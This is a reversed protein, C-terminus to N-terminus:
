QWAELHNDLEQAIIPLVQPATMENHTVEIDYNTIEGTVYPQWGAPGVIDSTDVTASFYLVNGHFVPRRYGTRIRATSNYSAALRELTGADIISV